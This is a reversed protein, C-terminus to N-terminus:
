VLVAEVPRRLSRPMLPGRGFRVVLDPRRAGLGFHSAFQPRLEAVEVPQNIMSTRIGLATCQLAFREFCRGAEIWHAPDSAASSFIAIGASSRIQAVYKDNEGKPTYVAGFIARGLWRPISPNGTTGSYLGDGRRVAEERGFRIWSELEEVFDPNNMQATNGAIVYSLVEEMPARGTVFQMAVGDGTGAQQLLQLEASSVARGDFPGRTSQRDAIAGYLASVQPSMPTLAIAYGDTVPTGDDRPSGRLGHAAAAQILNEAACGLSVYLHHQDPDVAPCRRTLDPLLTIADPEIRFRWCQTNHSSPALVALRVLEHQVGIGAKIHQPNLRWLEATARDYHRKGITWDLAGIATVGAGAVAIGEIFHRRSLMTATRHSAHMQREHFAIHVSSM